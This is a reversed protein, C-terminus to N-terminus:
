YILKIQKGTAHSELAGTLLIHSWRTEEPLVNPFPHKKHDERFEYMFAALMQQISDSFGTEFISGTITPVFSQSGVVNRTWGQEKGTTELTYLAKPDSTSFRASGKTGYVELFWTNTAGPAMRKMEFVLSFERGTYPDDARCTLVANDWTTCPVMNGKGDPRETVIKQLDAYVSKPRWGMRFPVHSTHIGLDGMCGYEGNFEAMRKWNIPKTLDLDSSHHFGSRVEIIQGYRHEELWQIMRKMAPFYPFESSCRVIVEPHERSAQLIAENAKKDIGFPKEGLLHKGSRIIRTYFPEHLHHPVACYVADIEDSSLMEDLSTFQVTGESFYKNFWERAAQNSTECIGKVVPIPLDDYLHCWRAVASAFEKGMLGLGVIGFSIKRTM